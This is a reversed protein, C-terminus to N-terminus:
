FDIKIERIKKNYHEPLSSLIKQINSHLQKVKDDVDQKNLAEKFILNSEQFTNWLRDNLEGSFIDHLSSDLSVVRLGGDIERLADMTSNYDGNSNILEKLSIEAARLQSFVIRYSIELHNKNSPFSIFIYPILILNLIISCSILIFVLKNKMM